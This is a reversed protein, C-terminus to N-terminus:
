TARRLYGVLARRNTISRTSYACLYVVRDARVGALLNGRRMVTVGNVRALRRVGRLARTLAGARSGVRVSRGDTARLVFAHSTTLLLVTKAAGSSGLTGSRDGPEGALLAGGGTVCFRLFGRKVTAPPGVQSRIQSESMGLTLPGVGHRDVHGAGPVCRHRNPVAAYVAAPNRKALAVCSPDAPIQDHSIVGGTGPGFYRGYAPPFGPLSTPDFTQGNVSFGEVWAGGDGTAKDFFYHGVFEYLVTRADSQVVSGRWHDEQFYFCKPTAAAIRAPEKLVFDLLGLQSINQRTKNFSVCYPDAGPDPVNTGFGANQVTCHFPNVGDWPSPPASATAPAAWALGAMLALVLPTWRWANRRGGVM